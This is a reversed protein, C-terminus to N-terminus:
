RLLGHMHPVALVLAMKQLLVEQEEEMGVVAEAAVRNMDTFQAMTTIMTERVVKALLLSFSLILPVLLDPGMLKGESGLIMARATEEM